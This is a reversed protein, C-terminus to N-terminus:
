TVSLQQGASMLMSQRRNHRLNAKGQGTRARALNVTHMSDLIMSPNCKALAISSGDQHKAKESKRGSAQEVHVRFGKSGQGLCVETCGAAQPRCCGERNTLGMALCKNIEELGRPPDTV